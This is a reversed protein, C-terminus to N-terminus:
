AEPLELEVRLGQREAVEAVQDRLAVVLGRRELIAPHLDHSLQRLDEGLEGLREGLGDLEGRRPDGEDLRNRVARLEFGLAALRQCHDDHLGRALRRRIEEESALRGLPDGM